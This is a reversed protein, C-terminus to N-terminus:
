TRQRLPWEVRLLWGMISVSIFLVANVLLGYLLIIFPLKEGFSWNSDPLLRFGLLAVPIMLIGGLWPLNWAAVASILAFFWVFVGVGPRIFVLVIALFLILFVLMRASLRLWKRIELAKWYGKDEM